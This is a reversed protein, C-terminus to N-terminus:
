GACATEDDPHAVLVMTRGPFVSHADAPLVRPTSHSGRVPELVYTGYRAFWRYHFHFGPKPAAVAVRLTAGEDGGFLQNLAACRHNGDHVYLYEHETRCVIPPPVARGTQMHLLWRSVRGPDTGSGAREIHRLPVTTFELNVKGRWSCPAHKWLWEHAGHDEYRIAIRGIANAATSHM